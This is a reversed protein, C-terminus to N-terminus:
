LAPPPPAFFEMAERRLGFKLAFDLWGEVVIRGSELITEMPVPYNRTGHPLECTLPLAGCAHHFFTKFCFSWAPGTANDPDNVEIGAAVLRSLIYFEVSNQRRHVGPSVYANAHYFSVRAGHSHFSLFGDPLERRLLDRLAQNEPALRPGFFDDHQLNVGDDNYYGGMFRLYGAPIPQVEKIKRGRFLTGDAKIGQQVLFIHELDAGNLHRIGARERGDPNLCPIIILRMQQTMAQLGSRDRGQLDRGTEIIHLLDLCTAVGETEGGHVLGILVLVPRTRRAPDFFCAPNDSGMASSITATPQQPELAGGTTFCWIDRGGASRGICRAESETVSAATQEIEALTTRWWDPAQFLDPREIRLLDIPNKNMAQLGKM